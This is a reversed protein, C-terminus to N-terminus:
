LSEDNLVNRKKLDRSLDRSVRHITQAVQDATKGFVLCCGFRAVQPIRVAQPGSSTGAPDGWQWIASLTSLKVPQMGKGDDKAGESTTDGTYWPQWGGAKFRGLKPVSYAYLGVAATDSALILPYSTLPPSADVLQGKTKSKPPRVAQGGKALYPTRFDRALYVALIQVQSFFHDQSWRLHIDFNVVNDFNRWGISVRKKMFVDSLPSSGRARTKQPSSDVVDGPPYYYALRSETFAESGSSAARMWKSTTKGYVDRVSGAETPNEIEPSEGLNVDFALAVQLSGGNGELEPIILKKGWTMKYVAGALRKAFVMTFGNRKLVLDKDVATEQLGDSTVDEDANEIVIPVDSPTFTGLGTTTANVRGGPPTDDNFENDFKETCRSLLLTAALLAAAGVTVALRLDM